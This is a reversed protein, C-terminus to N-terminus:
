AEIRQPGCYVNMGQERLFGVLTMGAEAAMAVSLSSPASLAAVFAIGAMWAKQTIEFGARGSALLVCETLPLREAFLAWGIVKDVANHRGVDERLCILRGQMDFLAAAHLGGTRSFVPQAARLTSPMGRLVDRRVAPGEQLPRGKVRVQDISTKGCIGCGGPAYLHRRLRAPDVIVDAALEVNVVNGLAAAEVSTCHRVDLVQAAARVLGETWMLGAALEADHGPTRMVVALPQDGVRIELPEEVAVADVRSVGDRWLAISQISAPHM